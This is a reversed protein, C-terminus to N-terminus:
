VYLIDQMSLLRFSFLVSFQEAYQIHTANDTHLICVCFFVGLMIWKDIHRNKTCILIIGWKRNNIVKNSVYKEIKENKYPKM